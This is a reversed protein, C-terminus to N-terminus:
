PVLQLEVSRELPLRPVEGQPTWTEIEGQDDRSLEVKMFQAAALTVEVTLKGDAPAPRGEESTWFNFLRVESSEGAPLLQYFLQREYVELPQEDLRVEFALQSVPRESTNEIVATLRCLTDPGPKEPEIRIEVVRVPPPSEQATLEVPLVLTTLAFTAVLAVTRM